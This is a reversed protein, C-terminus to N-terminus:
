VWDQSESSNGRINGFSTTKGGPAGRMTKVRGGTWQNKFRYAAMFDEDAYEEKPNEKVYARAVAKTCYGSNSCTDIFQEDTM